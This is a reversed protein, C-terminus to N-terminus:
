THRSNGIVDNEGDNNEDHEQDYAGEKGTEIGEQMEAEAKAIAAEREAQRKRKESEVLSSVNHFSLIRDLLNEFEESSIDNGFRQYVMGGITCLTHTRIDREKEATQKQTNKFEKQKDALLANLEAIKAALKDQKARMQEITKRQPM